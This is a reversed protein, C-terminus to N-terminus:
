LVMPTKSGERSNYLLSVQDSTNPTRGRRGVVSYDGKTEVSREM